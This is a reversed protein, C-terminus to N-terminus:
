QRLNGFASARLLKSQQYVRQIQFVKAALTTFHNHLFLVMREQFSYSHGHLLRLYWNGLEELYYVNHPGNDIAPITDAWEGPSAPTPLSVLLHNNVFDELRMSLAFDVDARSFSMLTRSLLHKAAHKDWLVQTQRTM